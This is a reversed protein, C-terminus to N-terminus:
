LPMMITRGPGENGYSTLESEANNNERVAKDVNKKKEEVIRRLKM